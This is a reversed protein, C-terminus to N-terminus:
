SPDPAAPAVPPATPALVRYDALHPVNGVVVHGDCEVWAHAELPRTASRAPEQVGIRLDARWGRGHLLTLATLSQVLCTMGPLRQALANVAWSVRDPFDRPPERGSRRARDLARRLQPYPLLWLGIRTFVLLLGAEALLRRDAASLARLKRWLAMVAGASARTTEGLRRRAARV